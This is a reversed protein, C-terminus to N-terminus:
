PFLVISLGLRPRYPRRLPLVIAPPPPCDYDDYVVVPRPRMWRGREWRDWREERWREREWREEARHGRDWRGRGWGCDDEDHAALPLALFALAILPLIRKFM